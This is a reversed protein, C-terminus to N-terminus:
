ECLSDRAQQAIATYLRQDHKTLENRERLGTYVRILRESTERYTRALVELEVQRIQHEYSFQDCRKKSKELINKQATIFSLLDNSIALSTDPENQSCALKELSQRQFAISHMRQQQRAYDYCEVANRYLDYSVRLSPTIKTFDVRRTYEDFPKRM